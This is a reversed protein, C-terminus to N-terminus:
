SRLGLLCSSNRDEHGDTLTPTDQARMEVRQALARMIRTAMEKLEEWKQNSAERVTFSEGTLSRTEM